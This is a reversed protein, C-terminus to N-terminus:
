QWEFHEGLLESLRENHPKFYNRLRQLTEENIPVYKGQNKATVNNPIIEEIGLFQHVKTLSEVPNSFFDESKIVLLQERKFYKLWNDIQEDYCGRSLYTFVHHNFDYDTEKQSIAKLADQTREVERNIAEEFTALTERGKRKEMQYHSYARSIPDRLLLILKMDKNDDYIRKPVHPHFVYYPSAEGYIFGKKFFPFYSKYWQIGKRYAFDYYHVEKFVSTKVEPHKTLLDFLTSTGGKQVGIIIFQPLARFKNLPYRLAVVIFRYTHKIFGPIREKTEEKM